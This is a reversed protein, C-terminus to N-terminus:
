QQAVIEIDAIGAAHDSCFQDRTESGDSALLLEAETRAPTAETNGDYKKLNIHSVSKMLAGLAPKVFIHDLQTGLKEKPSRFRDYSYGIFTGSVKVGDSTKLDDLAEKYGADTLVRLEEAGGDDPFCNFDGTVVVTGKTERVMKEVQDVLIQNAHMREVHKLGNHINVVHIPDLAYNPSLVDQGRTLKKCLPYLTLMLSVRGWGNGWDDSFRDPTESVWWRYMKDSFFKGTKYAIVNIFSLESPNNRFSVMEYGHKGLASWIDAVASANPENRIEQFGIIDPQEDLIQSFIRDKRSPWSFKKYLEPNRQVEAPHCVNITMVRFSNAQPEAAFSRSTVMSLLAVCTISGIKTASKM